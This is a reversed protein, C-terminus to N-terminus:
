AAAESLWGSLGTLDQETDVNAAQIERTIKPTLTRLVKGPGVELLHTVGCSALYEVTQMWRVPNFIQAQLLLRYQETEDPYPQATLNAVVPVNVRAFALEELLPQLADAAPLMLSCHFPASVPLDVVRKAGAATFGPRAADMAAAGGSVVIQEPSNFNAIELPENSDVAAEKCVENIREIGLGIVAAMAGQGIPVAEQMLRGRERVTALAESLPLSGAAVLATYEGLSHGAFFAAPPLEDVVASYIAYSTALVAPQTNTTLILEDEPGEFCLKSLPFQLAADAEEFVERAARHGLWDKGMGVRQSGQGPFVVALSM